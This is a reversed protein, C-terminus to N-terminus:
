TVQARRRLRDRGGGRRGQVKTSTPWAPLGDDLLISAGVSVDQALHDYTTPIEGDVAEEEPAFVVRQGPELEFHHRCTASAFGLDRFISFFPRPRDATRQASRAAARDVPALIEPTGHSANIRVVNVGGDLLHKWKSAAYGCPPGLTAVIKTRRVSNPM